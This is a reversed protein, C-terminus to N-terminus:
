KREGEELFCGGNTLRHEICDIPQKLVRSQQSGEASGAGVITHLEDIFLIVNKSRRIEDM